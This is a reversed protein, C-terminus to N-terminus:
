VAVAHAGRRPDAAAWRTGDADVMVGDVAGARWEMDPWVSVEHGMAALAERTEAPIRAEV